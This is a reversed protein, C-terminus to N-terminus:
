AATQNSELYALAKDYSCNQLYHKLHADTAPPLQNQLELIRMSVAKLQALHADPDAARLEHNAIVELREKLAEALKQFVQSDMFPRHVEAQSIDL